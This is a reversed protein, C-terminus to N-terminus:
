LWPLLHPFLPVRSALGPLWSLNAPTAAFDFAASTGGGGVGTAVRRAAAVRVTGTAFALLEVPLEPLSGLKM